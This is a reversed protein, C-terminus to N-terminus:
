RNSRVQSPKAQLLPAFVARYQLAVLFWLVLVIVPLVLVSPLMTIHFAFSNYLFAALM